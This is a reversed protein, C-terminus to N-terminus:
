LLPPIESATQKVNVRRSIYRSTVNRRFRERCEDDKPHAWLHIADIARVYSGRPLSAAVNSRGIGPDKPVGLLCLSRWNVVLHRNIHQAGLCRLRLEGSKQNRGFEQRGAVNLSM